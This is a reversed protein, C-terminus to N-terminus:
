DAFKISLKYDEPALDVILSKETDNDVIFDHLSKMINSKMEDSLTTVNFYISVGREENQREFEYVMDSLYQCTGMCGVNLANFIANQIHTKAWEIFTPIVDTEKKKRKIRAYKKSTPL